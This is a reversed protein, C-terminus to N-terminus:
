ACLRAQTLPLQWLHSSKRTRPDFRTEDLQEVLDSEKMDALRATVWGKDFRRPAHIQELLERLEAATVKHVGHRRRVVLADLVMQQSNPVKVPAAAVTDVAASM